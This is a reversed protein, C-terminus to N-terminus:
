PNVRITQIAEDFRNKDIVGHICGITYAESIASKIDDILPSTLNQRDIEWNQLITETITAKDDITLYLEM